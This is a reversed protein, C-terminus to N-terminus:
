SGLTFLDGNMCQANINTATTACPVRLFEFVLQQHAKAFPFFLVIDFTEGDAYRKALGRCARWMHAVLENASNSVTSNLYRDFCAKSIRLTGGDVFQINVWNNEMFYFSMNDKTKTDVEQEFKSVVQNEDEKTEKANTFSKISM